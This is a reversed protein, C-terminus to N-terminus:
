DIDASARGFPRKENQDCNNACSKAIDISSLYTLEIAYTTKSMSLAQSDFKSGFDMWFRDLGGPPSNASM